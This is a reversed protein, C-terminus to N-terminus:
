ARSACPDAASSWIEAGGPGTLAHRHAAEFAAIRHRTQELQAIQTEVRARAARLREALRPGILQGNEDPYSSALWRLEALTLGLGRLETIVQVCQLAEDDYLRYNAGSRGQSYILGWDTYERLAKVPVGTRRSLEGVTMLRVAEATTM